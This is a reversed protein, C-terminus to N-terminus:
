FDAKIVDDKQLINELNQQYSQDEKNTQPISNYDWKVWALSAAALVLYTAGVYPLLGHTTHSKEKYILDLLLKQLTLFLTIQVASGHTILWPLMDERCRREVGRMLLVSSVVGTLAIVLFAAGVYM